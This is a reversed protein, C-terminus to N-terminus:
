SCPKDIEESLRTKIEQKDGEVKHPQKSNRVVFIQEDAVTYNM